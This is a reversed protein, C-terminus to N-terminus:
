NGSVPAPIPQPDTIRIAVPRGTRIGRLGMLSRLLPYQIGYRRRILASARKISEEDDAVVAVASSAGGQPRGRGDSPAIEVRANGRIRKVKGSGAHTIVYLTDGERCIWVCTPVGTGDRRFTTLAVHRAAALRDLDTNGM